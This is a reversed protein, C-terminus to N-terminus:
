RSVAPRGTGADQPVGAQGGVATHHRASRVPRWSMGLDRYLRVAAGNWEDVILAARGYEACLRALVTGCVIRAYGRRRVHAATAVGAMFGLGPASWAEAAVALLRHDADRIGAWRRVGSGGPQAYSAPFHEALLEAVEPEASAPLWHAEGAPPYAETAPPPPHAEAPSRHPDTPPTRGPRRLSAADVQMWGFTESVVLDPRAAGLAAILEADGLVRVARHYEAFARDVLDAVAEPRGSVALRDRGSLATALVGVAGDVAWIRRTRGGGAAWVCIPDDGSLAALEALSDVDRVARGWVAAM